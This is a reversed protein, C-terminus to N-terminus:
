PAAQAQPLATAPKTFKADDIEVNQRVEAVQITFQGSPRAVTWQYAVKAGEVPRYDGYDVRVPNLGLPSDSYRVMRLLLGTQKDFYLRIRPQGANESVLQYTERGAINEPRGPRLDPFIQRIHLPFQLDADIKSGEAESGPIERPPHGPSGTWGQQGDFVTVSDGNPLHMFSTRKGPAKDYIDIGVERGAFSTTGKQTRSFIRLLAKEGGLAAVYKGVLETPGPLTRLFQEDDLSEIKPRSPEESILPVAAPVLAGRHCTNCTVQRRGDFGDQNIEKTMLIMKRATVKPKKDDQDFHNEVHCFGCEVGLSASIFQMSPILADSPIDKLVQINKFTHGAIAQTSPHAEALQSQAVGAPSVLAAAACFAFLCPNSLFSSRHKNM